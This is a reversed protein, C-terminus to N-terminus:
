YHLFYKKNEYFRKLSKNYELEIKIEEYTEINKQFEFFCQVFNTESEDWQKKSRQITDYSYKKSISNLTYKRNEEIEIKLMKESKKYKKIQEKVFSLSGTLENIREKIRTINREIFKKSSLKKVFVRVTTNSDSDSALYDM